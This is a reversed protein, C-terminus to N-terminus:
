ARSITRKWCTRRCARCPGAFLYSVLEDRVVGLLPCLGEKRPRSSSRLSRVELIWGIYKVNNVHQNADMDSWRPQLHYMIAHSNYSVSGFPFVNFPVSSLKQHSVALGSRIREATGDTLKDIKDVDNEAEPIALRNLYFPTLEQKVQEPIKSLRRTERNM